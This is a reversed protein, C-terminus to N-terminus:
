NKNISVVRIDAAPYGFDVVAGEATKQSVEGVRMYTLSSKNTAMEEPNDSVGMSLVDGINIDSINV